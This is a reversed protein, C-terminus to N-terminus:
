FLEVSGAPPASVLRDRYAREEARVADEHAHPLQRVLARGTEPFFAVKRPHIGGLDKALVPIGETQLYALVFQANRTGVPTSTFGQLVNGGGFVKAELRDRRAGRVLLANILLEMAHSGYRAPAGGGIDGDPLMFHNMGGIRMVPDRLCAAVCSGLVTTLAVGPEGVYYDAPLLKTARVRLGVDFYTRAADRQAGSPAVRASM